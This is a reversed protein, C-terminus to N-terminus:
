HAEFLQFLKVALQFFQSESHIVPEIYIQFCQTKQKRALGGFDSSHHTPQVLQFIQGKCLPLQGGPVRRAPFYLDVADVSKEDIM